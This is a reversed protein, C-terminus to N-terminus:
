PPYSKQEEILEDIAELTKEVRRSLESGARFRRGILYGYL